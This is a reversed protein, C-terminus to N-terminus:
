EGRGGADNPDEASGGAASSAPAEEPMRVFVIGTGDDYALGWGDALSLARVLRQNQLKDLVVTDITHRGLIVDWEYGAGLVRLYAQLVRSPVLHTNATVFPAVGSGGELALWDGWHVPNFIPGAPPNAALFGALGLPTEPDLVEALSRPQRGIM